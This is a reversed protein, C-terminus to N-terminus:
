NNEVEIDGNTNSTLKIEEKDNSVAFHYATQDDVIIEVANDEIKYGKYKKEIAMTVKLPLEGISVKRSTSLLEGDANFVAKVDSTNWSFNAFYLNDNKEWTVSLANSFDKNFATKVKGPIEDSKTAFASAAFFMIATTLTIALKKM